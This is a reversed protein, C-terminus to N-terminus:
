LAGRNKLRVGGGGGGERMLNGKGVAGFTQALAIALEIEFLARTDCLVELNRLAVM